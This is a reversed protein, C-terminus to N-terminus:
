LRGDLAEALDDHFLISMLLATAIAEDQRFALADIAVEVLRAQSDDDGAALVLKRLAADAHTLTEMM